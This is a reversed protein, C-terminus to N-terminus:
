ATSETVRTGKDSNNLRVLKYRIESGAPRPTFSPPKPAAGRLGGHGEGCIGRGAQGDSLDPLRTGKRHCHDRDSYGNPRSADPVRCRHFDPQQSGVHGLHASIAGRLNRERRRGQPPPACDDISFVTGRKFELSYTRKQATTLMRPSSVTWGGATGIM